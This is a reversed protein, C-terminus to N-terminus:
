EFPVLMQLLMRSSLKIKVTKDVYALYPKYPLDCFAKGFFDLASLSPTWHRGWFEVNAM